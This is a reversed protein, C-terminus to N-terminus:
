IHILSLGDSQVFQVNCYWEDVDGNVVDEIKTSDNAISLFEDKTLDDPFLMPDIVFAYLLWGLATAILLGVVSLAIIKGKGGEDSKESMPQWGIEQPQINASLFNNNQEEPIVQETSPIPEWDTGNWIFNGDPSLEGVM